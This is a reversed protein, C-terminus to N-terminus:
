QKSWIDKNMKLHDARVGAVSSARGRLCRFGTDVCIQSVVSQSSSSFDKQQRIKAQGCPFRMCLCLPPLWSAGKTEATPLPFEFIRPSVCFFSFFWQHWWAGLSLVAKAAPCLFAMLRCCYCRRCCCTHPRRRRRRRRGRGHAGVCVLKVAFTLEAIGHWTYNARVYARLATRPSGNKKKWETRIRAPM